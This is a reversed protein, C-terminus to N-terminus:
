VTPTKNKYNRVVKNILDGNPIVIDAQDEGTLRTSRIGISRVVGRIDGGFDVFDGIRIPKDLIIIFASFLDRLLNQLALAIALGGIGLGAIFASVDYGLNSLVFLIAIIWILFRIIVTIYSYASALSRDEVRSIYRKSFNIITKNIFKVIYLSWVLYFLLSILKQVQSTAENNEIALFGLYLGTFVILWFPIKKLEILMADDFNSKTYKSVNTIVIVLAFKILYGVVVTLCLVFIGLIIKNDQLYFQLSNLTNTLNM